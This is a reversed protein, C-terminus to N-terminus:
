LVRIYVRRDIISVIYVGCPEQPSRLLTVPPLHEYYEAYYLSNQTLLIKANQGTAPYKTSLCRGSTDLVRVTQCPTPAL